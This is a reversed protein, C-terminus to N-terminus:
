NFIIYKYLILTGHIYWCEQENDPNGFIDQYLMGFNPFSYWIVMLYVLRANCIGIPRLISWIDMFYVFIKL